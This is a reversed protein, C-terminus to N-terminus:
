NQQKHRIWRRKAAESLKKRTEVSPQKGKKSESINRRHEDTFSKGKLAESMKRKTEVSHRRGYMSNNEGKNAESIKIKTEDSHHKGYFPHNKDEMHLRRHESKTLFILEFYPRDYYMNMRNLEEPTHVFEGDLTMELRHHIVWTQTADAFAENYNEIKSIDDKCYKQAYSENIM